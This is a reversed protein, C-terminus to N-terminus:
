EAAHCGLCRYFGPTWTRLLAQVELGTKQRSELRRLDRTCRVEIRGNNGGSDGPLGPFPLAVILQLSNM